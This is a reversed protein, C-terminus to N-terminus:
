ADDDDDFDLPDNVVMGRLRLLGDLVDRPNPADAATTLTDALLMAETHSLDNFSGITRGCVASALDLRDARERVDLRRLVAHLLARDADNAPEPPEPRPPWEVATTAGDPPPDPAPPEVAARPPPDATEGPLPPAATPAPEAPSVRPGDVSGASKPAARSVRKSRPKPQETSPQEGDLEHV